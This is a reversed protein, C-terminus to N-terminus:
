WILLTCDNKIWLESYFLQFHIARFFLLSSKSVAIWGRLAQEKPWCDKSWDPLTPFSNQPSLVSRKLQLRYLLFDLLWNIIRRRGPDTALRIWTSEESPSLVAALLMEDLLSTMKSHFFQATMQDRTIREIWDYQNCNCPFVLQMWVISSPM